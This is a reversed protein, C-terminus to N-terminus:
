YRKHCVDIITCRNCSSYICAMLKNKIKELIMQCSEKLYSNKKIPSKRVPKKVEPQPAVQNLFKNSLVEVLKLGLFGIIFALGNQLKAEELNLLDTMIPTLYNAAAMGGFISLITSKISTQTDKSAMLIAGFLGSILFSITIGIDKM